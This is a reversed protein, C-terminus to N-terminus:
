LRGAESHNRILHLDPNPNQVPRIPIEQTEPTRMSLDRSREPSAALEELAHQKLMEDRIYPWCRHFDHETAAPHSMFAARAIERLECVANVNRRAQLAPLNEKEAEVQERRARNIFHLWKQIQRHEEELSKPHQRRYRQINRYYDSTRASGRIRLIRRFVKRIM